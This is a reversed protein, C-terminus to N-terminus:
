LGRGVGGSKTRCVVVLMLFLLLLLLLVIMEFGLKGRGRWEEGKQKWVFERPKEVKGLKVENMRKM